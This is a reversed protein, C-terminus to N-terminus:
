NEKTIEQFWNILKEKEPDYEKNFVICDYTAKLKIKTEKEFKSIVNKHGGQHTYFLYINKDTLNNQEIFSYIAPTVEGAWVPSAIIINEFDNLDINKEKLKPRKKFIVQSGGWLYKSFGKTSKENIPEIKEIALDFKTALDKALKETHGEYSYYLILTKKM